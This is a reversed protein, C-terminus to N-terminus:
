EGIGHLPWAFCGRMVEPPRMYPKWAYTLVEWPGVADLEEVNEFLLIGITRKATV